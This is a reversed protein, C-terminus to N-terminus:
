IIKLITMFRDPLDCAPRSKMSYVRFLDSFALQMARSSGHTEADIISFNDIKDSMPTVVQGAMHCCLGQHSVGSM